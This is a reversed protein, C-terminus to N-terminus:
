GNRARWAQIIPGFDPTIKDSLPLSRRKLDYMETATSWFFSTAERRSHVVESFFRPIKPALKRGIAGVTNNSGGTLENQEREVHAILVFLCYVDSCLKLLLREEQDMAMGWEGQHPAPKAGVCFDKAMINMGSLGDLALAKDFKWDDVPGWSKGQDDKFDNLTLLLQWWQQYEQKNFSGSLKTLAEYSMSNIQKANEMLKTFSTKVPPIYKTHVKSRDLGQAKVAEFISEEFGPDMGIVFLDLGAKVISALSYTKGSGPGGMLLVSPAKYTTTVLSTAPTPATTNSAVATNM